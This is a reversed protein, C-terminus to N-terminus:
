ARRGSGSSSTVVHRANRLKALFDKPDKYEEIEM